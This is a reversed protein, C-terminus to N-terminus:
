GAPRCSKFLGSIKSTVGIEARNVIKEFNKFCSFLLAYGGEEVINVAQM